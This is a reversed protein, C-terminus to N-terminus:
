NLNYLRTKRLNKLLRLLDFNNARAFATASQRNGYAVKTQNIALYKTKPLMYIAYRIQYKILVLPKGFTATIKKTKLKAIKKPPYFIM